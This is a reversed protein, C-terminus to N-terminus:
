FQRELASARAGVPRNVWATERSGSRLPQRGFARMILGLPTLVLFYVIGMFVPTTIRSLLIAFRMWARYVPGLVGPVLIGALVLVGGVGSFTLAPITVGRRWYIIGALALFAGGVLFAFSRLESRSAGRRPDLHTM